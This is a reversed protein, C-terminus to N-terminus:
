RIEQQGLACLKELIGMKPALFYLISNHDANPIDEELLRLM